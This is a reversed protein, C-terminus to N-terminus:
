VLLGRLSPWLPPAMYPVLLSVECVACLCTSPRLRLSSALALWLAPVRAPCPGPMSETVDLREGLNCLATRFESADIMGTGDSLHSFPSLPCMDFISFADLLEQQPDVHLAFRDMIALYEELKFQTKGVCTLKLM